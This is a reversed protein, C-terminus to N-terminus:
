ISESARAKIFLTQSSANFGEAIVTLTYEGPSLALSFEGTRNSLASSNTSRDRASAVIQAGAIAARDPDLVRGKILSQATSSQARGQCFLAAGVLLTFFLRQSTSSTNLRM